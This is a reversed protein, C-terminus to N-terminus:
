WKQFIHPYIIVRDKKRTTSTKRSKTERKGIEFNRRRRERGDNQQKKGIEQFKGEGLSQKQKESVEKNGGPIGLRRSDASTPSQNTTQQLLSKDSDRRRLPGRNFFGTLYTTTSEQQSKGVKEQDIISKSLNYLLM